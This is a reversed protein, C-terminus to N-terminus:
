FQNNIWILIVIFFCDVKGLYKRYVFRKERYKLNRYKLNLLIYVMCILIQFFFLFVNRFDRSLRRFVRFKLNWIVRLCFFVFGVDFRFDFFFFWEYFWFFFSREMMDVEDIIMFYFLVFIVFGDGFFIFWSFQYNFWLFILRILNVLCM